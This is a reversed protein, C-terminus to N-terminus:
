ITRQMIISELVVFTYVNDLRTNLEFPCSWLDGVIM